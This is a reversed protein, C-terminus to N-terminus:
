YVTITVSISLYERADRLAMTVDANKVNSTLRPPCPMAKPLGDVLCTM